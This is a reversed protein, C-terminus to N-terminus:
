LASQRRPANQRHFRLKVNIVYKKAGETQELIKERWAGLSAPEEPFEKKNNGPYREEGHRLANEPRDKFYPLIIM